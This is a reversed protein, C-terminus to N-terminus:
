IGKVAVWIIVLQALLLAPMGYKFYWHRTKHHYVWMGIIAGVSGGLAALVFLTKEPIRWIGQRARRKDVGFMLFTLITIAAFYILIIRVLM